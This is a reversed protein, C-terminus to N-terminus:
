RHAKSEHTKTGMIEPSRTNRQLQRKEEERKMRRGKTNVLPLPNQLGFYSKGM